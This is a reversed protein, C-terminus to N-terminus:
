TWTLWLLGDKKTWQGTAPRQNFDTHGLCGESAGYNSRHSGGDGDPDLGYAMWGIDEEWADDCMGAYHYGYSESGHIFNSWSGEGLWRKYREHNNEEFANFGEKSQKEKQNESFQWFGTRGACDLRYVSNARGRYTALENIVADPLKWTAGCLNPPEKTRPGGAKDLGQGCNREKGPFVLGGKGERKMHEGSGKDIRAVLTWGSAETYDNMCYTSYRLEKGDVKIDKCHFNYIGSQKDRVDLCDCGDAEPFWALEACDFEKSEGSLVNAIPNSAKVEATLKAAEQAELVVISYTCVAISCTASADGADKFVAKHEQVEDGVRLILEYKMKPVGNGVNEFSILLQGTEDGPALSPVKSFKSPQLLASLKSMSEVQKELAAVKKSVDGIAGDIKTQASGDLKQEVKTNCAEVEATLLDVANVTAKGDLEMSVSKKLTSLDAIVLTSNVSLGGLDATITDVRKGVVDADAQLTEIATAVDINNNSGVMLKGNVRTTRTDGGGNLM